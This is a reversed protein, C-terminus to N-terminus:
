AHALGRVLFSAPINPFRPGNKEHLRKHVERVLGTEWRARGDRRRPLGKLSPNGVSAGHRLAPWRTIHTALMNPLPDGSDAGTHEGQDRKMLWGRLRDHM